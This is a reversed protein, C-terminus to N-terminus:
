EEPGFYDAAFQAETIPRGRGTQKIHADIQAKTRTFAAKAEAPWDKFARGNGRQPQPSRPTAVRSKPAPAIEADGEPAPDPEAEGEFYEPFKTKAKDRILALKEGMPLDKTNPDANMRDFQGDAYGKADPNERYWAQEESNVWQVATQNPQPKPAPTVVPDPRKAKKEARKAMEGNLTEIDKMAQTAATKDGAEVALEHSKRATEIARQYSREEATTLLERMDVVAERAEAIQGAMTEVQAQLQKNQAEVRAARADTKRLNERLVPLHTEGRRVFEDADVWDEPKGHYEEQPHWGMRRARAEASMDPEYGGGGAGQNGLPKAGPINEGSM